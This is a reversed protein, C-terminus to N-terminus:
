SGNCGKVISREPLSAEERRRPWMETSENAALCVQTRRGM